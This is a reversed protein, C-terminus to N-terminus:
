NLEGRNYKEEAKLHVESLLSELFNKDQKEPTMAWEQYGDSSSTGATQHVEYKNLIEQIASKYVKNQHESTSTFSFFYSGGGFPGRLRM